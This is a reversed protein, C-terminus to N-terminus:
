ALTTMKLPTAFAVVQQGFTQILEEQFDPFIKRLYDDIRVPNESFFQISYTQGGSEEDVLVKFIKYEKFQGDKMSQPIFYRTIYNKWNDYVNDSTNFTINIIFM